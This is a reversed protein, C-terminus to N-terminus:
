GSFTKEFNQKTVPCITFKDQSCTHHTIVGNPYVVFMARGIVKNCLACKRSSNITVHASQAKLLKYQTDLHDLESLYKAVKANRKSHLTYSLSYFLFSFVGDDDEEDDIGDNEEKVLTWDDPIENVVAAPDLQSHSAYKKLFRSIVKKINTSEVKVKDDDPTMRLYENYENYKKIYLRFLKTLLREQKEVCYQEAENYMQLNLMKTLAENHHKIVGYLYIEEEILWSDKIQSLISEPTYRATPDRLFKNM